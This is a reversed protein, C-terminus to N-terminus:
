PMLTQAVRAHVLQLMELVAGSSKGGAKMAKYMRHMGALYAIISTGALRGHASGSCRSCKDRAGSEVNIKTEHPCAGSREELSGLCSSNDKRM